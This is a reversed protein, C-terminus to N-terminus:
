AGKVNLTAVFQGASVQLSLDYLVRNTGFSKALGRATVAAGLPAAPPAPADFSLASLARTALTMVREQLQPELVPM